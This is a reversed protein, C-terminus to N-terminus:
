FPQGSGCMVDVQEDYALYVMARRSPEWICFQLISPVEEVASGIAQISVTCEANEQVRPSVLAVFPALIEQLEAETYAYSSTKEQLCEAWIMQSDRIARLLDTNSEIRDWLAESAAGNVLDNGELHSRFLGEALEMYENDIKRIVGDGVSCLGNLLYDTAPQEFSNPSACLTKRTLDYWIYLHATIKGTLSYETLAFQLIAGLGDRIIPGVLSIAVEWYREPPEPLVAHVSQVYYTLISDVVDSYIGQLAPDVGEGERLFQRWRTQCLVITDVLRKDRVTGDLVIIGESKSRYFHNM